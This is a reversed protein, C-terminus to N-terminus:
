PRVCSLSQGLIPRFGRERRKFVPRILMGGATVFFKRWVVRAEELVDPRFPQVEFGARRLADAATRVATRTEATVPTRGDDEFYGIRLKRVEAESPWRLPPPASCTDGDDPGQM